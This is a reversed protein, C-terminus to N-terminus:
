PQLVETLGQIVDAVVTGTVTVLDGEADIWETCDIQMRVVRTTDSLRGLDQAMIPCPASAVAYLDGVSVQTLYFREADPDYEVAMGGDETFAGATIRGDDDPAQDLFIVTEDLTLRTGGVEVTGGSQPLGARGRVIEIPLAVVGAVSVVANGRIDAIDPCEVLAAMLGAEQNIAGETVTCEGPDLYLSLDDFEILTVEGTDREFTINGDPGSLEPASDPLILISGDEQVQHRGGLGSASEFLLTGSRDGTVELRGGIATPAAALDFSPVPTATAVATAAAPIMLASLGMTAAAVGGVTGALIALATAADRLARM